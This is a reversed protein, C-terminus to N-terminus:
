RLWASLVAAMCLSKGSAFLLHLPDAPFCHATGPQLCPAQDLSLAQPLCIRLSSQRDTARIVARSWQPSGPPVKALDSLPAKRCKIAKVFVRLALPCSFTGPTPLTLAMAQTRAASAAGARRARPPMKM